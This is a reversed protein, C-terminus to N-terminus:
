KPPNEPLFRVLRMGDLDIPERRNTGYTAFDFGSETNTAWSMVVNGDAAMANVQYWIM